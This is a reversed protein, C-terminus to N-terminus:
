AYVGTDYPTNVLLRVMPINRIDAYALAWSSVNGLNGSTAANTAYKRSAVGSSAAQATYKRAPPLGRWTAGVATSRCVAQATAPM